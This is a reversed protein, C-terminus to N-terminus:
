TTKGKDIKKEEKGVKTVLKNKALEKKKKEMWKEFEEKSRKSFM